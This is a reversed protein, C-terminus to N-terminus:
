RPVQIRLPALDSSIACDNSLFTPLRSPRALLRKQAECYAVFAAFAASAVLPGGVRKDVEERDDDDDRGGAGSASM